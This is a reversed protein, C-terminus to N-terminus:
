NLRISGLPKLTKKEFDEHKESKSVELKFDPNVLPYTAYVSSPPISVTSYGAIRERVWKFFETQLEAHEVYRDGFMLPEFKRTIADTYAVAKGSEMMQVAQEGFVIENSASVASTSPIFPRNNEGLYLLEVQGTNPNVYAVKTRSTGFDIAITTKTM